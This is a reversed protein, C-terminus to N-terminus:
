AINQKKLSNPIFFCLFIEPFLVPLEFVFAHKVKDFSVDSDVNGCFVLDEKVKHIIGLEGWHKLIDHKVVHLATAQDKSASNSIANGVFCVGHTKFNIRALILVIEFHVHM